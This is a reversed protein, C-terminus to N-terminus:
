MPDYGTSCVRIWDSGIAPPMMFNWFLIMKNRICNQIVVDLKDGGGGWRMWMTRVVNAGTKAIEPFSKEGSPDTVVNMNNVGRLIVREGEPSYLFRGSVYFNNGKKPLGAIAAKTKCSAFNVSWLVALFLLFRSWTVPYRAM